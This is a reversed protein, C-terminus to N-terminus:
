YYNIFYEGPGSGGISIPLDFSVGVEVASSNDTDDLDVTVVRNVFGSNGSPSNTNSIWYGEDAIVLKKPMVALFRQPAYFTDAGLADEAYTQTNAGYSTLTLEGNDYTITLLAGRHTLSDFSSGDKQSVLVYLTSDQVMMDNVTLAVTSTSNDFVESAGAAVYGKWTLTISEASAKYAYRAIIQATTGVTEGTQTVNMAIYLAGNSAAINTISTSYEYNVDGEESFLAETIEDESVVLTYTKKNSPIYAYITGGSLYFIYENTTDCSIANIASPADPLSGEEDLSYGSFLSYAYKVISSGTVAYLNCNGDFCFDTIAGDLLFTGITQNETIEDFAALGPTFTSGADRDKNNYLIIPSQGATLVFPFVASGWNGKCDSVVCAITGEAPFSEDRTPDVTYEPDISLLTASDGTLYWAFAYADPDDISTSFKITSGAAVPITTKGVANTGTEESTKITFEPIAENAFAGIAYARRVYWSITYRVEETLEDTTSETKQAAVYGTDEGEAEGEFVINIATQEPVDTFVLFPTKEYTNYNDLKVTLQEPSIGYLSTTAVTVGDELTLTQIGADANDIVLVKSVATNEDASDANLSLETALPLALDSKWKGTAKDQTAYLDILTDGSVGFINVGYYGDGSESRDGKTMADRLQNIVVVDLVPSDTDMYITASQWKKNDILLQLIDNVNKRAFPFKGNFGTEKDNTGYYVAQKQSTSVSSASGTTTLGDAIEVLFDGIDYYIVADPNEADIIKTDTVYLKYFGSKLGTGTVVLEPIEGNYNYVAKLASEESTEESPDESQIDEEQIKASYSTGKTNMNVLSVYGSSVDGTLTYYFDGTEEKKLGVSINVEAYGGIEVDTRTGTLTLKTGDNGDATKPTLSSKATVTYLGAPVTFTFSDGTGTKPIDDIFGNQDQFTITWNTFDSLSYGSMPSITRSQNAINITVNGSKSDKNKEVTLNNCGAFLAAAALILVSLKKM